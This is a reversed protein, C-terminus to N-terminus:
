HIDNILKSEKSMGKTIPDGVLGALLVVYDIDTLTKLSNQIWFIEM